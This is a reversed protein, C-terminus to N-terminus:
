QNKGGRKSQAKPTVALFTKDLGIDWLNERRIEESLRMTIHKKSLNCNVKVM